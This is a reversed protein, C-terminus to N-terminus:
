FSWIHMDRTAWPQPPPAHARHHVTRYGPHRSSPLVPLTTYRTRVWGDQRVNTNGPGLWGTLRTIQTWWASWPGPLGKRM